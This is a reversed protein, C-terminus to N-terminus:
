TPPVAAANKQSPVRGLVGCVIYLLTCATGIIATFAAGAMKREPVDLAMFSCWEAVEGTHLETDVDTCNALMVQIGRTQAM